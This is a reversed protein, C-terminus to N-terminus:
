GQRSNISGGTSSYHILASMHRHARDSMIRSLQNHNTLQLTRSLQVVYSIQVSSHHNTRVLQTTEGQLTYSTNYDTTSTSLIRASKGSNHMDHRLQKRATNGYHNHMLQIAASSTITM